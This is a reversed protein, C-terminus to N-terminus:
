GCKEDNLSAQSTEIEISDPNKKPLLFFSSLSFSFLQFVSIKHFLFFFDPNEKLKKNRM